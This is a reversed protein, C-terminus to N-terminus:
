IFIFWFCDQSTQLSSEIQTSYHQLSGRVGHSTYASTVSTVTSKSGPTGQNMTKGLCSM